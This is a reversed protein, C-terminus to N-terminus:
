SIQINHSFTPSSLLHRCHPVPLHQSTMTLDQSLSSGLDLDLDM